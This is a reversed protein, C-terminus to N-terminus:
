PTTLIGWVGSDFGSVFDNQIDFGFIPGPDSPVVYYTIDVAMPKITLYGGLLLALMLANPPAGALGVLMTMDQNDQIFALTGSSAPFILELIAKSGEMTGDWNNSAIKARLLLRYTDDDLSTLGTSPDFPGQWVGQDFGLGVTDFSFYVGTIPTSVRRTIGIWEGVIDLQVGVADDLDFAEDMMSEALTRLQVQAEVSLSVTEVFILKDAHRSTIYDLYEKLTAM